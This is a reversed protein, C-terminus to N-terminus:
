KIFAANCFTNQKPLNRVSNFSGSTDLHCGHSSSTSNESISLFPAEISGKMHRKAYSVSSRGKCFSLLYSSEM